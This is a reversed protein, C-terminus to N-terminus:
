FMAGFPSPFWSQLFLLLRCACIMKLVNGRFPVSVYKAAETADGSKDMIKLVNGRFPVSVGNRNQSSSSWYITNEFCQGSLPRFGYDGREKAKQFEVNEFCQGSLPRFSMGRLELLVRWIHANEFCQGSLPRFGDCFIAIRELMIANEFCQGSLPRLINDNCKTKTAIIFCQFYRLNRNECLISRELRSIM